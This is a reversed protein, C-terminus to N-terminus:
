ADQPSNPAPPGAGRALEAKVRAIVDHPEAWGEAAVVAIAAAIQDFDYLRGNPSYLLARREDALRSEIRQVTRCIFPEGPGTM